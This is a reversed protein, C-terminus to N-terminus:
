EEQEAQQMQDQEAFMKTAQDLRQKLNDREITRAPCRQMQNGSYDKYITKYQNQFTPYASDVKELRPGGTTKGVRFPKFFNGVTTEGLFPTEPGLPNKYTSKGFKKHLGLSNLDVEDTGYNGYDKYTAKGHFPMSSAVTRAIIPKIGGDKDGKNVGWSVFQGRYSSGGPFPAKLHQVGDNPGGHKARNSIDPETGKYGGPKSYDSRNVTSM